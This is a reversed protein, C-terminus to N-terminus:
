MGDAEGCDDESDGPAPVIPLTYGCHWYGCLVFLLLLFLSRYTYRCSVPQVARTRYGAYCSDEALPFLLVSSPVMYM